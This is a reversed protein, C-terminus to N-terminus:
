GAYQTAGTRYGLTKFGRKRAFNLQEMQRILDAYMSKIGSAQSQFIPDTDINYSNFQNVLSELQQNTADLSEQMADSQDPPTSVGTIGIATYAEADPVWMGDATQHLHSFDNGFISVADDFSFATGQTGDIASGPKSSGSVKQKQQEPTATEGKVTAGRTDTPTVSTLPYNTDFKSTLGNLTSIGSDTSLMSVAKAPDSFPMNSSRNTEVPVLIQQGLQNLRYAFGEPAPKTEDIM